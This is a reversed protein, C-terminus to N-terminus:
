HQSTQATPALIIYCAMYVNMNRKDRRREGQQKQFVQRIKKKCYRDWWMNINPFNPKQKKRQEWQTRIAEKCQNETLITNNLKRLGRGRRLVPVYIKLRLCVAPHETFAVVVAEMSLKRALLEQSLYIRYIRTAGSASYHTYAKRSPDGQWSDQLKFGRVLEALAQSYNYTGTSDTKELIYNFDGGLIINEPADRLLYALESNYFQEREQRRTTGSPACINIISVERFKVAIARGSPLKSM